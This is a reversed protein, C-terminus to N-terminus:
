VQLEDIISRFLVLFLEQSECADKTFPTELFNDYEANRNSNLKFAALCIVWAPTSFHEQFVSKLTQLLM